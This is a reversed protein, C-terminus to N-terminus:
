KKNTASSTKSGTRPTAPAPKEPYLIAALEEVAAPLRPGFRSFKKEDVEYVRGRRVARLERFLPRAAPLPSRNMPGRQVLYVDPQRALLSEISYPVLQRPVQVLNRGGAATIIENVISRSGAATLDHDRCRVEFFVLPKPTRGAVRRRVAQLRQRWGSVLAAARPQCHFVRGLEAVLSFFQELTHPDATIVRIGARQLYDLAAATRGRRNKALVLDPNLALIKEISPNFHTGVKPKRRVPPPYDDSNSVGVLYQGLDLAYLTETLGGYLSIVRTPAPAQGGAGAAPGPLFLPLLLLLLLRRGGPGPRFKNAPSM